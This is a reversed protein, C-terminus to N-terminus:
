LEREDRPTMDSFVKTTGQNLLHGTSQISGVKWIDAEDNRRCVAIHVPTDCMNAPPNKSLCM